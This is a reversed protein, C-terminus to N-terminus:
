MASASGPGTASDEELTADPTVPKWLKHQAPHQVRRPPASRPRTRAAQAQLAKLSITVHAVPPPEELPCGKTYTLAERMLGKLSLKVEPVASARTPRMPPMNVSARSPRREWVNLSGPTPALASGSNWKGLDPRHGYLSDARKRNFEAARNVKGLHEVYELKDMVEGVQLAPLGEARHEVFEESVVEGQPPTPPTEGHVTGPMTGGRPSHTGGTNLTANSGPRPSPLTVNAPLQHPTRPSLEDELIPPAGTEGLAPMPTHFGEEGVLPSAGPMEEVIAPVHRKDAAQRVERQTELSTRLKVGAYSLELLRTDLVAAGAPSAVTGGVSARRAAQAAAIALNAREGPTQLKTSDDDRPSSLELIKPASSDPNLAALELRLEHVQAAAESLVDSTLRRPLTEATPNQICDEGDAESETDSSSPSVYRVAGM